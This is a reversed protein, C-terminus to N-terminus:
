RNAMGTTKSNIIRLYSELIKDALRDGNTSAANVVLHRISM